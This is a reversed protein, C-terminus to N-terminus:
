EKKDSSLGVINDSKHDFFIFDIPIGSLESMMRVISIKPESRGQEWNNVTSVDVDLADAWERMTMGANVRVAAPKIKVESM